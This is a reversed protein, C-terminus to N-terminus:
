IQCTQPRKDLYHRMDEQFDSVYDKIKLPAEDWAMTWAETDHSNPNLVLNVFFGGCQLDYITVEEGCLFKQGPTLCKALNAMLKPFEVQILNTMATDREDGPPLWIPKTFQICRSFFDNWLHECAVEGKYVLSPDDPKLKYVAGLYNMIATTQFMTTGDELTLMPLQGFALKGSEKLMMQEHKDVREDVFDVNAKHLAMRIPEGKAYADFYTLKIKNAM